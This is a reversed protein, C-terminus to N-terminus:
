FHEEDKEGLYLVNSLLVVEIPYVMRNLWDSTTNSAFADFYLVIQPVLSLVNKLISPLYLELVSVM